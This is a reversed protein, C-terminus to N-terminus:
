KIFLLKKVESFKRSKLHYFYIGSPYKNANWKIQHKGTKLQRSVLAEIEQGLSNYIKLYVFEIISIM